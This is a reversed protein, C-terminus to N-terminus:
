PTQHSEVVREVASKAATFAFLSLSSLGGRMVAHRVPNIKRVVEGVCVNGQWVQPMISRYSPPKQPLLSHRKKVFQSVSVQATLFGYVFGAFASSLQLRTSTSLGGSDAGFGALFEPAWFFAASWGMYQLANAGAGYFCGYVGHHRHAYQFFQRMTFGKLQRALAANELPQSALGTFAGGFVASSFKAGESTGLYHSLISRVTITAAYSPVIATCYSTMGAFAQRSFVQRLGFLKGELYRNMFRNAPTLMVATGGSAVMAVGVQNGADSFIKGITTYSSANSESKSM